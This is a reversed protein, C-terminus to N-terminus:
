VLLFPLGCVLITSFPFSFLSWLFQYFTPHDNAAKWLNIYFSSHHFRWFLIQECVLFFHISCNLRRNILRIFHWRNLASNAATHWLRVFPGRANFVTANIASSINRLEVVRRLDPVFRIALVHLDWTDLLLRRTARCVYWRDRSVSCPDPSTYLFPLTIQLTSNYIIIYKWRSM